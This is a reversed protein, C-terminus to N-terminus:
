YNPGALFERGDSLERDFWNMADAVVGKNFEGYEKFQNPNVGATRSDANVWVQRMPAWLRFEARRLWMEVLAQELAGAGFMPPSPHLAEFYRCIAVSEALYAGSETELVPLQGLSNKKLFDAAKHAGKMLPVRETEVTLGKEALYIRVKRPNPAPNDDNYLKM